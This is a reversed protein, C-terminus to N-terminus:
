SSHELAAFLARLKDPDKVGPSSEVGSSVDVAYPRVAAVAERVNDANLGGSLIIPRVRAASAAQTWDITQGTGGRKEPDHADLLVTAAAPVAKVVPVCDRGNAVAVAKIIRRGRSVGAADDAYDEVAEDGHLQIAGVNVQDAVHSVIEVPQNVFVGVTTVFPPLAAVIAGAEAPEIYRPSSPWFIFGLAVAGLEVALRADDVTRIGCIKVRTM